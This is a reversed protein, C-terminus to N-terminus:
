AEAPVTELGKSLSRLAAGNLISLAGLGVVLLAVGYAVVSTFLSARLFSANMVTARQDRYQQALEEDGADAAENAMSGLEAYTHGDTAALAHENIIQAQAFASIPGQVRAGPMLSSDGPVTINEARLQSTVVGWTVGGAVIFVLGIIISIIGAVKATKSRMLNDGKARDQNGM